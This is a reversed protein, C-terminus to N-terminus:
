DNLTGTMDEGKRVWKVTVSEEGPRVLAARLDSVENCEAGAVETVM